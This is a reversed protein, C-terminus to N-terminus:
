VAVALPRSLAIFPEDVLTIRLVLLIVLVIAALGSGGPFYGGSNFAFYVILLGPLALLIADFAATASVEAGARRDTALVLGVACAVAVGALAGGTAGAARAAFVVTIAGAFVLLGIPALRNAISTRRMHRWYAHSM